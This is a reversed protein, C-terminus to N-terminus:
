MVGKRAWRPEGSLMELHPPLESEAEANRGALEDGLAARLRQKFAAVRQGQNAAPTPSPAPAPMNAMNALGPLGLGLSDTSTQGAVDLDALLEIRHETAGVLLTRGGASLWIIQQKPGISVRAVVRLADPTTLVPARRRWWMFGLGSFALMATALWALGVRPASSRLDLAADQTAAAAWRPNGDDAVADDHLAPAKAALEDEIAPRNAALEDAVAVSSAARVAPAAIPLANTTPQADAAVPTGSLKSLAGERDFAVAAVPSNAAIPVVPPATGDAIRVDFGGPVAVSELHKSLNGRAAKRQVVRVAVRAGSRGIQVFRLRHKGMPHLRQATAETGPVFLLAGTKSTIVQDHSDADVGRIQLTVGGDDEHLAVTVEEAHAICPFALASFLGLAALLKSTTERLM